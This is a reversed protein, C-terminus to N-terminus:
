DKGFVFVMAQCFRGVTEFCMSEAMRLYDKNTDCPAGYAICWLAAMCKQVSSFGHLGTCDPKCMFYDDYEQVGFMIKMFTKKNMRFHCRFEEPTNAADEAFYDYDLLLVQLDIDIRTRRRGLGQVV